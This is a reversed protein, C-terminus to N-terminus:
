CGYHLVIMLLHLCYPRFNTFSIQLSESKIQISFVKIFNINTFNRALSIHSFLKIFHAIILHFVIHTGAFLPSYSVKGRPITNKNM